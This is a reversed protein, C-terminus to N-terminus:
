LFPVAFVRGIAPYYRLECREFLAYSYTDQGQGDKLYLEGTLQAGTVDAGLEQAKALIGAGLLLPATIAETM